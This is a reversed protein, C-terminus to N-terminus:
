IRTPPPTARMDVGTFRLSASPVGDSRVGRLAAEEEEKRAESELISQDGAGSPAVGVRSGAVGPSPESKM